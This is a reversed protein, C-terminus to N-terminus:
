AHRAPTTIYLYVVLASSTFHDCVALSSIFDIFVHVLLLVFWDGVCLTM